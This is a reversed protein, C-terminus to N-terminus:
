MEVGKQCRAAAESNNFKENILQVLINQFLPKKHPNAHLHTGFINRGANM